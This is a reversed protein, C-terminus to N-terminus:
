KKISELYYTDVGKVYTYEYIDLENQFELLVNSVVESNNIFSVDVDSTNELKYVLDTMEYDRYFYYYDDKIEIFVVRESIIINDEDNIVGVLYTDYTYSLDSGRYLEGICLNDGIISIGDVDDINFYESNIM